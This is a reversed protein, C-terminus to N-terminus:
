RHLKSHGQVIKLSKAVNKVVRLIARGKQLLQAEQKIRVKTCYTVSSGEQSLEFSYLIPLFPSFACVKESVRSFLCVLSM